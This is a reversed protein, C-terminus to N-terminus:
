HFFLFFLNNTIPQQNKYDICADWVFIYLCVENGTNDNYKLLDLIFRRITFPTRGDEDRIQSFAVVSAKQLFYDTLTSFDNPKPIAHSIPLNQDEDTAMSDPGM